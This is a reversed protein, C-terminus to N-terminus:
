QRTQVHPSRKRLSHRCGRGQARFSGHPKGIRCRRSGPSTSGSTTQPGARSRKLSARGPKREKSPTRRLTTLLTPSRTCPCATAQCNTADNRHRPDKHGAYRSRALRRREGFKASPTIADHIGIIRAPALIALINLRGVLQVTPLPEPDLFPDGPQQVGIITAGEENLPAHPVLCVIRGQRTLAEKQRRGGRPKAGTNKAARSETVSVPKLDAIAAPRPVRQGAALPVPPRRADQESRRGLV